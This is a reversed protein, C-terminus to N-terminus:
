PLLGPPSRVQRGPDLGTLEPSASNSARPSRDPLLREGIMAESALISSPLGQPSSWILWWHPALPPTQIILLSRSPWWTIRIHLNVAAAGAALVGKLPAVLAGSSAPALGLWSSQYRGPSASAPSYPQPEPQTWLALIRTILILSPVQVLDM